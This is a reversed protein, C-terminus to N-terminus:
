GHVRARGDRPVASDSRGSPREKREQIRIVEHFGSEDRREDFQEVSVRAAGQSKRAGPLDVGVVPLDAHEVAAQRVFRALAHKVRGEVSQGSVLQELGGTHDHPPLRELVLAAEVLRKAVALVRIEPPPECLPVIEGVGDLWEDAVAEVGVVHAPVLLREGVRDPDMEAM